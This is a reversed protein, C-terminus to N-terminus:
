QVDNSCTLYSFTIRLRYRGTARPQARRLKTIATVGAAGRRASADDEPRSGRRIGPGM